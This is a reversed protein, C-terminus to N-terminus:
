DELLRSFWKPLLPKLCGGDFHLLADHAIASRMKDAQLLALGDRGNSSLMQGASVGDYQLLTGKEPLVGEVLQVQTLIKRLVGLHKTRATVEQGVYCGKRFDVANLAEFGFQLPFSKEPTLDRSDDPVGHQLRWVDYDDASARHTDVFVANQVVMRLGLEPLRPDAACFVADAAYQADAGWAAVVQLDTMAIQVDARLRYLNLRKQLSEIHAAEGDLLVSAGDAYLFFSYLYKGQPTLLAAYQARQQTLKSVDTTVLGQLYAIVASGSLRLVARHSLIAQKM